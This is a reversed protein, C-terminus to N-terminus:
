RTLLQYFVAALALVAVSTSVVMMNAVLRRQKARARISQHRGGTQREIFAGARPRWQTGRGETGSTREAQVDDRNGARVMGRGREIRLSARAERTLFLVSVVRDGSRFRRRPHRALFGVSLGKGQRHFSREVIEQGFPFPAVGLMTRSIDVLVFSTM